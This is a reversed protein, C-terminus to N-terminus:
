TGLTIEKSDVAGRGNGDADSFHVAVEDGFRVNIEELSLGKTEPFYWWIVGIDVVTLCIFLLYYKWGVRDLATPGVELFVITPLFTGAMSVAMGQSRIHTPFIESCYVYSTADIGGAYFCIFCFIFLVGLSNGMHNTTGVYLAEMACELSLFVMCGTLGIILLRVRGVRDMILSAVFNAATAVTVYTAGLMLVVGGTLGLTKYLNVMYNYVVMAGTAQAAYQTFFGMWMRKRYSPKTLMQWAGGGAIWARSDLEVQTVMQHFEQQAYSTKESDTTSTHLKSVIDWSEARRGQMLLWRPSEPVWPSCCLLALPCLCQLAMPFRWQFSMNTSYYTGVGIWGAIANAAVIWVGHQGVLLGRSSPPSVEAQFIPILVVLMGVGWGTVIRGVLFMATNVSGAQLGGGLISILAATNMTLKRGYKDCMYGAMLAGITGGASFIGNIAGLVENAHPTSAALGFYDLFGPQGLTNVLVSNAYGYTLSGLTLILITRINYASYHGM